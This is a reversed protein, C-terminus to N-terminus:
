PLQNAELNEQLAPFQMLIGLLWAPSIIFLALIALIREYFLNLMLLPSLMSSM